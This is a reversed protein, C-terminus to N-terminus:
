LKQYGISYNRVRFGPWLRQSCSRSERIHKQSVSTPFLHSKLYAEEKLM